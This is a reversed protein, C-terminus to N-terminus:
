APPSRAPPRRTLSALPGAAVPAAATPAVVVVRTQSYASQPQAVYADGQRTARAQMDVMDTKLINYAADGPGTGVVNGADQMRGQDALTRFAATAQVYTLWDRRVKAFFARDAPATVLKSAAAF